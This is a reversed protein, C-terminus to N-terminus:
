SERLTRLDLDVRYVNASVALQEGNRALIDGRKADIRIENKWQEEAMAGYEKHKFIMIYSLRLTLAALLAWIVLMVGYTRGMKVSKTLKYEKFNFGKNKKGKKKVM